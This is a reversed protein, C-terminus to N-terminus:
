RTSSDSGFIADAAYVTSEKGEAVGILAGGNAVRVAVIEVGDAQRYRKGPTEDRAQWRAELDAWGVPRQPVEDFVAKAVALPDLVEGRFIRMSSARDSIEEPFSTQNLNVGLGVIPVGRVLETLVGGVKRGEAVLDNPWQVQVDLVEAAALAVAMGALWPQEAGRWGRLVFSVTLSEGRRSHWERQFRGRGATQHHAFVVSPGSDLHEAACSQTSVAEDLVLWEAM